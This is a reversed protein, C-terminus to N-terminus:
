RPGEELVDPLRAVFVTADAGLGPNTIRLDGGLVRATQRAIALGLGRDAGRTSVGDLFIAETQDSQIGDGSNAVSIVLERGVALLDVVVSAPRRTSGHAADLANDVLNELVTIVEVPQNEARVQDGLGPDAAVARAVALARQKYQSELNGNLLWAVLGFGILVLASVVSIQLLLLQRTFRIRRLRTVMRWV